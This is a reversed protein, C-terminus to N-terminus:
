SFSRCLVLVLVLLLVLLFLGHRWSVLFIGGYVFFSALLFLLDAVGLLRFGEKKGESEKDELVV